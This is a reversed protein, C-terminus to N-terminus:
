ITKTRFQGRRDMGTLLVRISLCKSGTPLRPMINPRYNKPLKAEMRRKAFEAPNNRPTDVPRLPLLKVERPNYQAIAAPVDSPIPFSTTNPFGPRSQNALASSPTPQGSQIQHASPAPTSPTLSGQQQKSLPPHVGSGQRSPRSSTPEPQYRQRPTPAQRLNRAARVSSVPSDDSPKEKTPTADDGSAAADGLPLRGKFNERTRTLLNGGKATVDELIDRPPPEKGHITKIEYAALLKYFREKLSFATASIQHQSTNLGLEGAMRRWALKEDCIKDYGGNQVIHNFVKLLDLHVSGVRPEPDFPTGRDEHFDRLKSIFEEYEPTRDIEHTTPDQKPAM